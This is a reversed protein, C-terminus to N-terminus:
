SSFLKLVAKTATSINGHMWTDVDDDVGIEASTDDYSCDASTMHLMHLWDHPVRCRTLLSTIGVVPIGM